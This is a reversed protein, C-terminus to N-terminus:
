VLLGNLRRQDLEYRCAEFLYEGLGLGQYNPTLYLEYIEGEHRGRTRSAGCTAYGAATGGAELVLIPEQGRLSNKWWSTDRRQILNELHLYPIIGRYALRWSEAFVQALATADDPKSRRVKM